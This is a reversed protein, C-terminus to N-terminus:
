KPIQNNEDKMPLLNIQNLQHFFIPLDPKHFDELYLIVILFMPLTEHGDLVDVGLFFLVDGGDSWGICRELIFLAFVLSIVEGTLGSGVLYLM